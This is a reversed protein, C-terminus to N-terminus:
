SLAQGCQKCFGTGISNATHCKPCIWADVRQVAGPQGAPVAKTPPQTFPPPMAARLVAEPDAIGGVAGRMGIGADYASRKAPDTLTTRVQELTILAQNAQAEVSPDHHTVLRRWQNYQTEFASEIESVSATTQVKLIEYYTTMLVEQNIWLMFAVTHSYHLNYLQNTERIVGGKM